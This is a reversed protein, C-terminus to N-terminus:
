YSIYKQKYINTRQAKEVRCRAHVKESIKKSSARWAFIRFLSTRNLELINALARKTPLVSNSIIYLRGHPQLFLDLRLILLVEDSPIMRSNGVAERSKM